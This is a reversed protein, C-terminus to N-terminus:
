CRPAHRRDAGVVAIRSDTYFFYNSGAATQYAIEQGDPSWAPTTNPGGETVIKKMAGDRVDVVAINATGTSILDPDRVYTIAIRAGDPSWAFGDAGAGNGDAAVSFAGGTLRKAPPADAGPTAPVDLVWLHHMVYDAHVVTYEGYREGRDKLYKPESDEAVYAIRRSDPSWVFADIGKEVKTLQVAEGGDPAIIYIQRKDGPSGRKLQGPRDSLFAIWHGDPSWRPSVSSKKGTTLPHAHGTAVDAIWIDREFANDDWNTRQVEYAVRHGDPSLRPSSAGRTDELSQDITPVGNAPAQALVAPATVLGGVVVLLRTRARVRSALANTMTGQRRHWLSLPTGAGPPREILHTCRPVPKSTSVNCRLEYIDAM